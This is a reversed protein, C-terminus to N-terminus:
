SIFKIKIEKGRKTWEIIENTRLTKKAKRSRTKKVQEEASKENPYEKTPYKKEIFESFHTM